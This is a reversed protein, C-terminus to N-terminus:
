ACAHKWLKGGHKWQSIFVTHCCWRFHFFLFLSSATDFAHKVYMCIKLGFESEALSFFVVVESAVVGVGV